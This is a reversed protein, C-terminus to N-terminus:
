GASQIRAHQSEEEAFLKKAADELARRYVASVRDLPKVGQALKSVYSYGVGSLQALKILRRERKARQLAEALDM